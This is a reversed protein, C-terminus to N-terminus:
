ARRRQACAHSSQRGRIPPHNIAEDVSWGKKIRSYVTQYKIGKSLCLDVLLHEHGDYIVKVTNKRNRAQSAPTAWRCNEPCYDQLSDIRDLTMGKPREGMDELFLEFTEWRECYGIGKAGYNIREPSNCRARMSRWSQYTPTGYGHGHSFNPHHM